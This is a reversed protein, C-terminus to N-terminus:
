HCCRASLFNSDAKLSFYLEVWSFSVTAIVQKESESLSKVNIRPNCTESIKKDSFLLKEKRTDTFQSFQVYSFQRFWITRTTARAIPRPVAINWPSDFWKSFLFVSVWFLNTWKAVKVLRSCFNAVIWQYIVARTKAGCTSSYKRQRMLIEWHFVWKGCEVPWIFVFM